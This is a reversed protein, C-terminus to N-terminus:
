PNEVIIGERVPLLRDVNVNVAFAAYSIIHIIMKVSMHEGCVFM